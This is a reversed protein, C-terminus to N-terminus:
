GEIEMEDEASLQILVETYSEGDDQVNHASADNADDVIQVKM